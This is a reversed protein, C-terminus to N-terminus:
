SKLASPELLTGTAGPGYKYYTSASNQSLPSTSNYWLRVLFGPGYWQFDNLGRYARCRVCWVGLVSRLVM